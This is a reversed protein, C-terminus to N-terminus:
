PILCNLSCFVTTKKTESMKLTIVIFSVTTSYTHALHAYHINNVMNEFSFANSFYPKNILYLIYDVYYM